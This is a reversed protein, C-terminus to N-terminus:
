GGILSQPSPGIVPIADTLLNRWWDSRSRAHRKLDDPTFGLLSVSLGLDDAAKRVVANLRRLTEMDGNPQVIAIDIDSTPQDSGRAVSGILWVAKPVPRMRRCARRLRDLFADVRSAEREFLQRIAIALIHHEALQYQPRPGTGSTDVVGSEALRELAKGTGSKGLGARKAVISAPLATKQLSLVRLIRVAAITGLVSDLPQHFFSSAKAPPRM